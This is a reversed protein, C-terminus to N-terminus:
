PAPKESVPSMPPVIRVPKTFRASKGSGADHLTTELAYNGPKLGEFKYTILMYFERNPRRSEFSFNAFGEKGLIVQESEIENSDAKKNQLKLEFDSSFQIRYLGEGRLHKYGVPEVYVRIEDNPQYVNGERPKYLGYAEVSDVFEVTRLTLRMSEWVSALAEELADAAEISKGEALLARTRDLLGNVEQAVAIGLSCALCGACLVTRFMM